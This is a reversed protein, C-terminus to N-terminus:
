CRKNYSLREDPHKNCFSSTSEFFWRNHERKWIEECKSSCFAQDKDTIGNCQKCKCMKPLYLTHDKQWQEKYEEWPVYEMIRKDLFLLDGNENTEFSAKNDKWPNCVKCRNGTHMTIKKCKACYKKKLGGFKPNYGCNSCTQNPNYLKEGCGKCKYNNQIKFGCKLCQEQPSKLDNGCKQCKYIGKHPDFGCKNCIEFTHHRDNNGCNKCPYQITPNNLIKLMSQKSKERM